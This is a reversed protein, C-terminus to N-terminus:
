TTFETLYFARMLLQSFPFYLMDIHEKATKFQVQCLNIGTIDQDSSVANCVTNQWKSVTFKLLEGKSLTAQLAMKPDVPSFNFEGPREFYLFL